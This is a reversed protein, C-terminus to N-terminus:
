IIDLLFSEEDGEAIQLYIAYIRRKRLVLGKKKYLNLSYGYSNMSQSQGSSSSKIRDYINGRVPDLETYIIKQM